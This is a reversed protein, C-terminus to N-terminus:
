FTYEVNFNGMIHFSLKLQLQKFTELNSLSIHQYSVIQFKQEKKSKLSPSM